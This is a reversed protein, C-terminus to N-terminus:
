RYRYSRPPTEERSLGELRWLTGSLLMLM